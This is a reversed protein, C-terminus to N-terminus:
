DTPGVIEAANEPTGTEAEAVACDYVTFTEGLRDLDDNIRQVVAEADENGVVLTVTIQVYEM